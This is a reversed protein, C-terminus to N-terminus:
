TKNNEKLVDACRQCLEGEVEAAYTWCRPCKFREAEVIMVKCKRGVTECIDDFRWGNSEPLSNVIKVSSVQLMMQLDDGLILM